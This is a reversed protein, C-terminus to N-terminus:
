IQVEFFCLYYCADTNQSCEKKSVTKTGTTNVLNDFGCGRRKKGFGLERFVWFENRRSKKKEREGISKGKRMRKMLRELAVDAGCLTNRSFKTQRDTNRGSLTFRAISEHLGFGPKEIRGARLARPSPLRVKIILSPQVEYWTCPSHFRVNVWPM